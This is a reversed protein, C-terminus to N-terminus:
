HWFIDFLPMVEHGFLTEKETEIKENLLSLALERMQYADDNLVKAIGTLFPKIGLLTNLHQLCSVGM